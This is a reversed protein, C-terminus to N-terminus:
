REQYFDSWLKNLVELQIGNELCIASILQVLSRSNMKYFIDTFSLYGSKDYIDLASKLLLVEQVDSTQEIDLYAERRKVPASGEGYPNEFLKLFMPVNYDLLHAIVHFLFWKGSLPDFQLMKLMELKDNM